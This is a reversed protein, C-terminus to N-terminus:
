SHKLSVCVHVDRSSPLSIHPVLVSKISFVWLLGCLLALVVIVSVVVPVIKNYGLRGSDNCRECELGNYYALQDVCISCRPGTTGATSHSLSHGSANGLLAPCRLYVLEGTQLGEACYGNGDIDSHMGGM